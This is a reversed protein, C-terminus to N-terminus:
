WRYSVDGTVMLRTGYFCGDASFCSAVYTRDFLNNVHAAVRWGKWAPREVRLDYSLGLDFLVVTPVDFTNVNDGASRGVYRMGGGVKLGRLGPREVMM